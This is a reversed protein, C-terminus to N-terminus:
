FICSNQRGALSELLLGSACKQSEWLSEGNHHLKQRGQQGSQARRARGKRIWPRRPLMAIASKSSDANANRTASPEAATTAIAQIGPKEDYSIIAVVESPEKKKKAAAAVQKLIKVQRYICLVEVMKEAFDPDRQELYYRVKHPKIEQQDLIKCVTGQALNALCVHGQAPGHEHSHRALLRTTWL